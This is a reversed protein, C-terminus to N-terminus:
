YPPAQGHWTGYGDEKHHLDWPTFEALSKPSRIRLITITLTAVSLDGSAEITKRVNM